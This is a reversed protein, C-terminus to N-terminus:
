PPSESDNEVPRISMIINDAIRKEQKSLGSYWFHIYDPMIPSGAVYKYSMKILIERGFRKHQDQWQIDKAKLGHIRFSTRRKSYKTGIDGFDPYNGAYAFLLGKKESVTPHVFQYLLFDMCPQEDVTMTRPIYVSFGWGSYHIHEEEQNSTPPKEQPLIISGTCSILVMGLFLFVCSRYTNM